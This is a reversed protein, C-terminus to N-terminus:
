KGCRISRSAEDYGLCRQGAPCQEGGALTGSKCWYGAYNTKSSCYFGDAKTGCGEPLASDPSADISGSDLAPAGGDKASDTCSVNYDAAVDGPELVGVAIWACAVPEVNLKMSAAQALTVNAFDRFSSNAALHGETVVSYWLLIADENGLPHAVKVGSFSHTGGNALLYFAHSPINSDVHRSGFDDAETCSGGHQMATHSPAGPSERGNAPVDMCRIPSGPGLWGKAGVCWESDSTTYKRAMTGFVDAISEDLAGPEGCTELQLHRNVVGHTYEHGMVDLEDALSHCDAGDGDPFVMGANTPDPFFYANCELASPHTYVNITAGSGDWSKRKFKQFFFDDVRQMNLFADVASGPEKGEDDWETGNSSVIPNFDEVDERQPGTLPVKVIVEPRDSTAIRQLFYHSGEHNVRLARDATPDQLKPDKTFYALGKGRGAVMESRVQDQVSILAGSQADIRYRLVSVGKTNRVHALYILKPHGDVGGASAPAVYPSVVLQPDISVDARGGRARLDTQIVTRAADISVAPKTSIGDVDHLAGGTVYTVAGSADYHVSVRSLEVPVGGSTQKFTVHTGGLLDKSVSPEGLSRVPVGFAAEYKGLLAKASAAPDRGGLAEAPLAVRARAFRVSGLKADLEVRWEEAAKHPAADDGSCAVLAATALVAAALGLRARSRFIYDACFM